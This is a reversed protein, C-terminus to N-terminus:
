GACEDGLVASFQTSRSGHAHVGTVGYDVDTVGIAGDSEPGGVHAGWEDLHQGVASRDSCKGYISAAVIHDGSPLVCSHIDEVDACELFNM